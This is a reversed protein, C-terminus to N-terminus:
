HRFHRQGTFVMSINHENAAAIVEDDKNSGGPQVVSTIGAKAAIDISDRFPFFADSALVSGHVRDGAKKIAIETSDVRSMQGAGVGVIMGEQALVIANSKVHKCVIWAFMLNQVEKETPRKKTVYKITNIDFTALDRGQVLLGGVVRKMDLANSDIGVRGEGHVPLTLSPLTGTKLIRLSEGWKRKKTLIEIAEKDYDPAIMAEVFHGPATIAEATQVDVERNLGIICGFASVPDGSHAKIYAETLSKAYGAGCPNTHKIIVVSPEEFEKVLELAANLDMINNYSLEKGTLQQANSVCPENVADEVYFVASQHPNEGYRLDQKKKLRLTLVTPFRQEDSTAQREDSQCVGFYDAIAKDYSSTHRFAEVALEFCTKGSIAGNYTRLEELVSKYRGPDVIVAVYKHNKAASRIMSPGGIDINEIAEEMTVNERVVTKEFPYLNVVVMDIPMIGHEKMQQQH